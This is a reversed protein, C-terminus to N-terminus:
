KRFIWATVDGWMYTGTVILIKENEISSIFDILFKLDDNTVDRSDKAFLDISSFPYDVVGFNSKLNNLVIGAAAYRGPIITENRPSYASSLTGGTGILAITNSNNDFKAQAIMNEIIANNTNAISNSNYFSIIENINFKPTDSM